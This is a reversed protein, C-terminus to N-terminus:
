WLLRSLETNRLCGQRGCRGLYSPSGKITPCLYMAPAGNQPEKHNSFTADVLLQYYVMRLRTFVPLSLAELVLRSVM